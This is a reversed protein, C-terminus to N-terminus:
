PLDGANEEGRGRGRARIALWADHLAVYGGKVTGSQNPRCLASEYVIIKECAEREAEAGDRRGAEIIKRILFRRLNEDDLYVFDCKDGDEWEFPKQAGAEIWAHVKAMIDDVREDVTM